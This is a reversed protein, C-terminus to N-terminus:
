MDLNDLDLVRCPDFESEDIVVDNADLKTRNVVAHGLNEFDNLTVYIQVSLRMWLSGDILAIHTQIGDERYLDITLTRGGVPTKPYAKMDPLLVLRMFPAQCDKSVPAESTGWLACLRAVGCDLLGKNYASIVDHGGM